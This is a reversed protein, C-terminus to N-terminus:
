EGTEMADARDQLIRRVEAFLPVYNHACSDTPAQVAMALRDEEDESLFTDIKAYEVSRTM